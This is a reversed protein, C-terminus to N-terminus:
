EAKLYTLTRQDKIKVKNGEITYFLALTPIGAGGTAKALPAETWM